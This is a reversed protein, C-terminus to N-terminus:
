KKDFHWVGDWTSPAPHGALETCRDIFTRCAKDHPREAQAARFGEMATEFRGERYAQRAIQWKGLFTTHRVADGIEGLLEHIDLTETTGAAVIRDLPRWVLRDATAAAVEGSALIETGYVKNLSELRSAQNAVAGVLTYNIRNRAGVNGVVAPGTHLGIRTHFIPRGRDRWKAALRRSGEAAQLAAACANFIHDPDPQPANWFAMISDGIYKDIMGRHASIASGITDFYRSLRSTLLEPEISEAIRSFGEIDTFMVTLQRRTGGLGTKGPARMIESVLERSVYLGFVQLGERMHEIANSLKLIETIRSVVPVRDSFDLRGIRETKAAIRALSRSLLLSALGVAAIGLLIALGAAMAARELLTRSAARLELVPVAAAITLTKGFLPPMAQVILRYNRGDVETNREIRRGSDGATSADNAIRRLARRVDADGPLCDATTSVCPRSEIAVDSTPTTLVIISNRTIKYTGLLDALTGLMFDFGIVGGGQIPVGASVGIDTTWAFTYPDTLAPAKRREADIYWPRTRPDFDNPRSQVMGPAAARDFWWTQRRAAGEGVITHVLLSATKPVDFERVIEPSLFSTHGVYLLRGDPYGVFAASLTPHRELLLMLERRREDDAGEGAATRFVPGDSMAEGAAIVVKVGDVIFDGVAAHLASMRQEASREELFEVSRWGLWLLTGCLPLVILAM